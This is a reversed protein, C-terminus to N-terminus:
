EYCSPYIMSWFRTWKTSVLAWNNLM